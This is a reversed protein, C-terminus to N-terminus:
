NKGGLVLSILYVFVLMCHSFCVVVIFSCSVSSAPLSSFLSSRHGSFPLPPCLLWLGPHSHSPFPFLPPATWYSVGSSGTNGCLGSSDARSTVELVSGDKLAGRSHSCALLSCDSTRCPGLSCWAESGGRQRLSVKRLLHLLM